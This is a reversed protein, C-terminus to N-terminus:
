FLGEIIGNRDIKIKEALPYKNLCPMTLVKGTLVVAFNVGASIRIEKVTLTFNKPRGLLKANDSLSLPTKAMCVLLNNYNAKELMKLDQNAKDEYVVDKAGYINQAITKIKLKLNDEQSYLYKFNESQNSDCIDIVLKALDIAGDGGKAFVDSVEVLYNNNQCWSLLYDIEADSDSAFKNIAVVVPLNFKQISELHKALNVVGKKLGEIDEQNLKNKNVGGHLKLARITAVMVVASPQLNGKRCKINLFKKLVLTLM